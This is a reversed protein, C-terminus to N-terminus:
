ERGALWRTHEPGAQLMSFAFSETVLSPPARLTHALVTAAQPHAAFADLWANSTSEPDVGDAVLDFPALMARVSPELPGHVVAVTAPAAALLSRSAVGVSDAAASWEDATGEVIIPAPRAFDPALVADALPLHGPRFRM